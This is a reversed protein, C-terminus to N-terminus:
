KRKGKLSRVDSGWVWDRWDFKFSQNDNSFENGLGITQTTGDGEYTTYKEKWRSKVSKWLSENNNNEATKKEECFM